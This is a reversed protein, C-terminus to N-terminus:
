PGIQTQICVSKKFDLQNKYIEVGRPYHVHIFKYWRKAFFWRTKTFINRKAFDKGRMSFLGLIPKTKLFYSALKSMFLANRAEYGILYIVDPKEQMILRIFNWDWWDNRLYGKPAMDVHFVKFNKEIVDSPNFIIPKGAHTYKYYKPGVLTVEVDNNDEVMFRWRRYFDETRFAINVALIKM